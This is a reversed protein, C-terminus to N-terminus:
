SPARRFSQSIQGSPSRSPQKRATQISSRTQIRVRSRGSSQSQAPHLPTLSACSPALRSRPSALTMPSPPATTLSASHHRPSHTFALSRRFRNSTTSARATLPISVRSAREFGLTRHVFLFCVIGHLTDLDSDAYLFALSRHQELM